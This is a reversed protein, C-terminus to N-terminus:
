QSSATAALRDGHRPTADALLPLFRERVEAFSFHRRGIQYNREAPERWRGPDELLEAVRGVAEASLEGDIEICDVGTPAIDRRYVPYRNVLLPRRHYFAELLANGFGEVRSPYCVLDAAAYADALLPRAPDQEYEARVPAFILEVGLREAEERLRRGYGFGEDGEHHSVVVKVHGDDLQSALRLTTEIRKRPVVRTPQLLMLDDPGVGAWARYAAGDGRAPEEEFDMVNPLVTSAIGRRRRLQDRAASQITLHWLGPLAPPFAARLVDPVQPRRFREREWAFDHHHAVAPIGTEALLEALAMGLPVHMPLCLANQVVAVDVDFDRLFWRLLTKLEAARNELSRTAEQTPPRTGFLEGELSRIAPHGFHAPPYQLGPRFRDGLEGAFWVVQHGAEELVTALKDAELSVGDLGAFRTGVMGVIV